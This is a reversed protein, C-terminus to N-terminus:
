GAMGRCTEAAEPLVEACRQCHEHDHQSCEEACAELADACIAALDTSYGSRRAMFRAHLTCLDAVDRCLRICREMEAEEDLCADACWECVQAAALCNDICDRVRDSVDIDVTM